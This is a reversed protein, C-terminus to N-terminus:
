FRKDKKQYDSLFVWNKGFLKLIKSNDMRFWNSSYILHIDYLKKEIKFSETKFFEDLNRLLCFHLGWALKAVTIFGIM